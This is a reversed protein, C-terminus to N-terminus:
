VLDAGRLFAMAKIAKEAIQQAIFCVQAYHDSKLSDEGWALDDEAQELWAKARQANM